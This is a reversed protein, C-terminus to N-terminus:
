KLYISRLFKLYPVIPIIFTSACVGGSVGVATTLLIVASTRSCGVLSAGVLALAAGVEAISTCEHAYM